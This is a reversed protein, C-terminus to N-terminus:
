FVFCYWYQDTAYFSWYPSRTSQEVREILAKSDQQTLDFINNKTLFLQHMEM